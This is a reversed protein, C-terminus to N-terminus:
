VFNNRAIDHCWHITPNKPSKILYSMNLTHYHLLWLVPLHVHLYLLYSSNILHSLMHDLPLMVQPILANSTTMSFIEPLYLVNPMSVIELHKFAWTWLHLDLNPMLHHVRAHASIKLFDPFMQDLWSLNVIFWELQVLPTIVEYLM